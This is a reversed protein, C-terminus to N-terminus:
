HVSLIPVNVGDLRPDTIFPPPDGPGIPKLEELLRLPPVLIRTICSSGALSALKQRRRDLDNFPHLTAPVVPDNVMFLDPSDFISVTAGTLFRSLKAPMLRPDVHLFANNGPPSFNTSTERIHCATCTDLSVLFRKNNNLIGPARFHTNLQNIATARATAAMFPALGPFRDPVTQPIPTVNVFNAFVATNNLTEDPTQKVTDEFLLHTTANLKFERLEWLSNLANENTRLQNLASGNPKLPNAGAAVFQETIAELAANYAPSGIPLLSLDVWQNAWDTIAKCGSIPVGYEFIVSFPMFSCGGQSRDLVGFILRGEGANGGGYAPNNGLDIRNVIASLRFPSRDLDLKGFITRPWPNLIRALIAARPMASFGSSVLQNATWLRLWREVFDAPDVGTGAVMETVLHKFTWVGNPNGVGSCPDITRVPDQVVTPATIMLSRSPDIAAPSILPIFDFLNIKTGLKVLQEVDQLEILRKLRANATDLDEVGIIERGHFIARPRAKDDISRLAFEAQESIVKPNFEVLATFVGDGARADGNEGDDRLLNRRGGLVVPVGKTVREDGKEFVVELLAMGNLDLLQLTAREIGPPVDALSTNAPPPTEIVGTQALTRSALAICIAVISTGWLSLAFRLRKITKM